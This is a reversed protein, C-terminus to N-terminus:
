PLVLVYIIYLGNNLAHHFMKRISILYGILYPYGSDCDVGSEVDDYYINIDFPYYLERTKELLYDIDKLSKEIKETDLVTYVDNFFKFGDIKHEKYIEELDCALGNSKTYTEIFLTRNGNSAESKSGILNGVDDDADSLDMPKKPLEVPMICFICSWYYTAM